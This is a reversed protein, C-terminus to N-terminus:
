CVKFNSDYFIVLEFFIPASFIQFDKDPEEGFVHLFIVDFRMFEKYIRRLGSWLLNSDFQM